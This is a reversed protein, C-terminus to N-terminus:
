EEQIFNLYLEQATATPTYFLSLSATISNTQIAVQVDILKWRPDAAVIRTVDDQVLTTLNPTENEFLLSQIISGFDPQGLREGKKTYFHNLLDRKALELDTLSSFGFYKEQTSFGVFTSMRINIPM